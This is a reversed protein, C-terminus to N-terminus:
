QGHPQNAYEHLTCILECFNCLKYSLSLSKVTCLSYILYTSQLVTHLLFNLAYIYLIYFHMYFLISM